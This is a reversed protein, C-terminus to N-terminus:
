YRSGAKKWTFAINNTIILTNPHEAGFARKRMGMVQVSLEEPEKWRRQNWFMSTLSALNTLM